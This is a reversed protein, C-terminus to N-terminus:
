VSKQINFEGQIGSIFGVWEHNTIRKIHEQTENASKFNKHRHKDPINAQSKGKKHYKQRAKSDPHHQGWLLLKSANGGRWKTLKPYTM